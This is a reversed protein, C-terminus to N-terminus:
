HKLCYAVFQFTVPEIGLRTVPNKMDGLGELWVLGPTSEAEVQLSYWSNEEPYFAYTHLASRVSM